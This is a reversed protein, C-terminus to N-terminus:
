WGHTQQTVPNTSVVTTLHNCLSITAHAMPWKWRLPVTSKCLGSYRAATCRKCSHPSLSAYGYKLITCLAWVLWVCRVQAYGVDGLTLPGQVWRAADKNLSMSNFSLQGTATTVACFGTGIRCLHETLIHESDRPRQPPRSCGSRRQLSLGTQKVNLGASIWQESDIESSSLSLFPQLPYKQFIHQKANAQLGLSVKHLAVVWLAVHLCAWLSLSVWVFWRHRCVHGTAAHSPFFLFFFVSRSSQNQATESPM